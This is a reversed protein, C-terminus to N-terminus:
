VKTETAARRRRPGSFLALALTRSAARCLLALSVLLACSLAVSAAPWAPVPDAALLVPGRLAFVEFSAAGVAAYPATARRPLPPLASALAAATGPLAAVAAAAAAAAATATDDAIAAAFAVAGAGAAYVGAAEYPSRGSRASGAAAAGSWAAAMVATDAVRLASAAAAVIGAAVPGGRSFSAAAVAYSACAVGAARAVVSSASPAAAAVAVAAVLRLCFAAAHRVGGCPGRAAQGHASLWAFAATVATAPAGRTHAAAALVAAAACQLAGSAARGAGASVVGGEPPAPPRGRGRAAARAAGVAAPAVALVAAAAYGDRAGSAGTDAVPFQVAALVGSVALLMWVAAAAPRAAKSCAAAVAAAAAATAAALAVGEGHRATADAGCWVIGAATLAAAATCRGQETSALAWMGRRGSGATGAPRCHAESTLGRTGTAWVGTGGGGGGGGHRERYRRLAGALTAALRAAGEDRFSSSSELVRGPLGEDDLFTPGALLVPAAAEHAAAVLRESDREVWPMGEQLDRLGAVAVTLATQGGAEVAEALAELSPAWQLVLTAGGVRAECARGGTCERALVAAGTGERGDLLDVAAAFLQRAALGGVVVATRGWACRLMAQRERPAGMWFPAGCAEPGLERASGPASFAARVCAEVRGGGDPWVAREEGRVSQARAEAKAAAVTALALLLATRKM